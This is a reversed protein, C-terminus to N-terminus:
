LELKGQELFADPRNKADRILNEQNVLLGQALDFDKFGGKPLLEVLSNLVRWIKSEANPAMRGVYDILQNRTGTKPDFLYMMRHTKDIDKDNISKGLKENAKIRSVMDGLHAEDKSRIILHHHYIEDYNIHLGTQAIRRVTDNEANAFGHLNLWGIYFKTEEDTNIDSIIANFAAEKAMDLLEAVTVESGDAKEVREYRGFVSVAKGFCATLLDAGRFGLDYLTKIEKKILKVIENEVEKYDGLGTKESPRCSVTVSSSLSDGSLGVARNQMETDVAWSSTINLRANLISNCLTTWAKTSQHAFMISVLEKTQIELADFIELLKDEFHKFAIDGDNNHHHKLATCEEAKPTQPTAFNLPYIDAITRKMWVYFFDSLDAYAIADYYPPDTVVVDIENKAFQEKEGSAAHNLTCKIDFNESEIYRTIWALQNLASGTRDSFPNSEPFDLMMPIAQRSFPHELKEGSTHWRGFSTNIIAIRDIWIGLYTILAEDYSTLLDGLERKFIELQDVFTQMVLLQRDTFMQGWEKLGWTCSPLAQTYKVPMKENPSNVRDIKENNKLDTKSPLKYKKGSDSDWIVSLLRSKNLNQRFQLKLKAAETVNGCCPCTLNGRSVWGQKETNGEKIEFNIIKDKIIPDLYVKKSKTKALYFGKLLPVEAACSPNSCTGLRAWYYAIPRNGNEDKSYFHGIKEESRKLILHAYYELDFSLRNDINLTDGFINGLGRQKELEEKGYKEEFQELSYVIPKGYQQPFECSGKQIIHAVPNIDNGYSNCGLRAAELPIAGGGAFPDFVKPMKALFNAKAKELAEELKQVEATQLHRDLLSYLANEAKTIGESLNKYEKLLEKYDSSIKANHSVFILQHAIGIIRKDNKNDWKILSGDSLTNKALTTKGQRENEVYKDSFKGIFMLLRNRVNDEMKDVVATHPINEYPKYFDTNAPQNKKSLLFDVADKFAKPCNEDQPDPVISAFVVARCVPLPRRAWWLHLTSIHGHRISKDRVSEASIEKVPMAVEILKKPKIAM